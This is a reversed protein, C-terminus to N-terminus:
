KHHTKTKNPYSSEVETLRECDPRLYVLQDSMTKVRLDAIWHIHEAGDCKGTDYEDKLHRRQPESKCNQDHTLRDSSM